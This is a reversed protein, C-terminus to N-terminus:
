HFDRDRLVMPAIITWLYLLQCFWLSGMKVWVSTWGEDISYQQTSASIDWNTLLMAMYMSALAFILHFFDPRYPVEDDSPLDDYSSKFLNSTSTSLTSYSVAALALIVAIIQIWRDGTGTGVVCEYSKPESELASVTLYACYAFVCGSTLLGASEMRKPLFLVLVFVIGMCLTWTIFFINLSCYRTPAYFHYSVGIMTLALAISIISGAILTAWSCNTDKGILWENLEYVFNLLEIVQFVLFIGSGVRAIQAYVVIVDSPVFFFGLIAGAWVVLKWFWLSTHFGVRPDDVNKLLFLVIVHTFFFCFNAFSIRTAVQQGTCLSQFDSSACYTFVSTNAAFFQDSYDRLLWAVMAVLAFCVCYFWKAVVFQRKINQEVLYCCLSRVVM